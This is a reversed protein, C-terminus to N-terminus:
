ECRKIRYWDIDPEELGFWEIVDRETSDEKDFSTTGRRGNEQYEVIWKM